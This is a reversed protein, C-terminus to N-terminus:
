RLIVNASVATIEDGDGLVIQDGHNFTRVFGGVRIKFSSEGNTSLMTYQGPLFEGNKVAKISKNVPLVTDGKNYTVVTEGDEVGTNTRETFREGDEVKVENSKNKKDAEKLKGRYSVSMFIMGVLLGVIIVSAIVLITFILGKEDM